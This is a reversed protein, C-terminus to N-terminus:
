KRSTTPAAATNQKDNLDVGLSLLLSLRRETMGSSSSADGSRFKRAYNRQRKLWIALPRFQPHKTKSIRVNGYRQKYARLEEFRDEWNSERADWVFGVSELLSQREESLNCHKGM